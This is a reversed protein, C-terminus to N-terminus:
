RAAFSPHFPVIEMIVSYSSSLSGDSFLDNPDQLVLAVQADIAEVLQALDDVLPVVGM